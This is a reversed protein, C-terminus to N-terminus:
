WIIGFRLPVSVSWPVLGGTEGQVGVGGAAIWREAFRYELLLAASGHLVTESVDPLPFTFAVGTPVHAIRRYQHSTFGAEVEFVPALHLGTDLRYLALVGLGLSRHDEFVDGAARKSRVRSAPPTEQATRPCM